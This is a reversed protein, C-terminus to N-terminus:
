KRHKNKKLGHDTLINAIKTQNELSAIMILEKSNLKPILTKKKKSHFALLQNEQITSLFKIEIGTFCFSLIETLDQDGCM